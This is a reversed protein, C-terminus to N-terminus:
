LGSAAIAENVTRVLVSRKHRARELIAPGYAAPLFEATEESERAYGLASLVSLM